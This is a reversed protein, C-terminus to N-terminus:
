MQMQPQRRTIAPTAAGAAGAAGTTSATTATAHSQHQARRGDATVVELLLLLEEIREPQEDTTGTQKPNFRPTM